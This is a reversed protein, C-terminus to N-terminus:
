YCSTAIGSYIVALRRGFNIGLQAPNRVARRTVNNLDEARM